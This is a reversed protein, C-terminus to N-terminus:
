RVWSYTSASTSVCLVSSFDVQNLLYELFKISLCFQTCLQPKSHASCM